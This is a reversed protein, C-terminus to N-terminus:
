TPSPQYALACKLPLLKFAFLIVALRCAPLSLAPRPAGEAGGPVLEGANHSLVTLLLTCAGGVLAPEGTLVLQAIHPLCTSSAMQRHALPLPHLM